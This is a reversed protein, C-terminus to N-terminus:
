PCFSNVLVVYDYPFCHKLLYRQFHHRPRLRVRVDKRVVSKLDAADAMGGGRCTTRLEFQVLGKRKGRRDNDQPLYPSSPVILSQEVRAKREFEVLQGIPEIVKRGGSGISRTHGVRM